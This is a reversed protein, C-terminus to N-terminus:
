MGSHASKNGQHPEAASCPRRQATSFWLASTDTLTAMLAVGTFSDVVLSVLADVPVHNVVLDLGAEM